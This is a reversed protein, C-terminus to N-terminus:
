PYALAARDWKALTSGADYTSQAFELIMKAPDPSRRVADYPLFFEKMQDSYFAAHPLVRQAAFGAPEPVTYSYFM